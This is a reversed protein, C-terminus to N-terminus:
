TKPRIHSSKAPKISSVLYKKFFLLFVILMKTQSVSHIILPPTTLTLPTTTMSFNTSKCYKRATTECMGAKAAATLLTKEQNIKKMLIRVQKDTVMRIEKALPFGFLRCLRM